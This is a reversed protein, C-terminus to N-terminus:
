RGPISGPTQLANMFEAKDVTQNPAPASCNRVLSGLPADVTRNCKAAAMKTGDATVQADPAACGALVIAFVSAFLLRYGSFLKM